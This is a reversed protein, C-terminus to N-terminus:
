SNDPDWDERDPALELANTLVARAREEIAGNFSM